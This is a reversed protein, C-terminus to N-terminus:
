KALEFCITKRNTTYNLYIEKLLASSNNSGKSIRYSYDVNRKWGWNLCWIYIRLKRLEWKEKEM